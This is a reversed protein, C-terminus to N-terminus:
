KLYEGLKGSFLSAAEGNMHGECDVYSTLSKDFGDLPEYNFDLLKLEYNEALGKFYKHQEQYAQEYMQRTTEPVPTIMLTLKIENSSCFEALKKFYEETEPQIQKTDWEIFNQFGKNEDAVPYCYVFGNQRYEQAANTFVDTELKRYSGSLKNKINQPIMKYEKRYLYWPFLTVRFDKDFLRDLFFEAKVGSWKMERFINCSDTGIYEEAIWYGGDIEYVIEEPVHHRCIEKVKYYTYSLYEGGLCMNVSKRGTVKDVAAPDICCKGHSTGVFVMDYNNKEINHYDVRVYSYPIFIYNLFGNILLVALLFIILKAMIKRKKFNRM